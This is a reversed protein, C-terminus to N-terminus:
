EEFLQVECVVSSLAVDGASTVGTDAIVKVPEDPESERKIKDTMSKTPFRSIWALASTSEPDPPSKMLKVKAM